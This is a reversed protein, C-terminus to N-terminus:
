RQHGLLSLSSFRFLELVSRTFGLAFCFTSYLLLRPRHANFRILCWKWPMSIPGYPRPFREIVTLALAYCEFAEPLRREEPERPSVCVCVAAGIFSRGNRLFFFGIFKESGHRFPFALTKAVCPM